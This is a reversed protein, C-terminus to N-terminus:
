QQKSANSVKVLSDVSTKIKKFNFDEKKLYAKYGVFAALLKHNYFGIKISDTLFLNFDLPISLFSNLKHQSILTDLVKSLELINKSTVIKTKEKSTIVSDLKSYYPGYVNRIKSNKCNFNLSLLLFSFITLFLYGNKM